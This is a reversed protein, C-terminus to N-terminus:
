AIVEVSVSKKGKDLIIIKDEDDDKFDFEIKDDADGSLTGEIEEYGGKTKKFLFPEEDEPVEEGYFLIYKGDETTYTSFGLNSYHVKLKRFEVPPITNAEKEKRKKEEAEIQQKEEKIRKEEAEKEKELRKEEAIREEEIRKEEVEKEKELRKEEAIREEEIRKEEAEKESLIREQELKDLREQEEKQEQEIRKNEEELKKMEQKNAEEQEAEIEKQRKENAVMREEILLQKDDNSLGIITEEITTLGLLSSVDKIYDLSVEKEDFIFIPNKVKKFFIKEEGQIFSIRNGNNDVLYGGEIKYYELISWGFIKNTEFDDFKKFVDHLTAGNPEDNKLLQVDKANKIKVPKNDTGYIEYVKHNLELM